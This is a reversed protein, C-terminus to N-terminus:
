CLTVDVTIRVTADARTIRALFGASGITRLIADNGPQTVLVVEDAGCERARRAGRRVLATGVGRRQWADEVIVGLEQTGPTEEDTVGDHSPFVHLSLINIGGEGCSRALSALVGPRDKITTRVRHLM